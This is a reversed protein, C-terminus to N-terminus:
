ILFRDTQVLDFLDGVEVHDEFDPNQMCIGANNFDLSGM